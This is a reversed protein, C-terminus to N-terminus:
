AGVEPILVSRAAAGPRAWFVSGMSERRGTAAAPDYCTGTAANNDVGRLSCTGIGDGGLWAAAPRAAMGRLMM